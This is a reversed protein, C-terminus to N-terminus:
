EEGPPFRHIFRARQWVEFGSYQQERDRFVKEAERVAQEDTAVDLTEVTEIKGNNTLYCRYSM